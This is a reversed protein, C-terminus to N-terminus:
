IRNAYLTRMEIFDLSSEMRTTSVARAHKGILKMEAFVDLQVM